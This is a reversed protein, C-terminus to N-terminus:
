GARESSGRGQHGGPPSFPLHSVQLTTPRRAAARQRGLRPWRAVRPATGRHARGPVRGGPFVTPHCLLRARPLRTGRREGAPPRRAAPGLKWRPLLQRQVHLPRKSPRPLPPPSLPGLSGVPALSATPHAGLHRASSPSGGSRSLAPASALPLDPAWCPVLRPEEAKHWDAAPPLPLPLALLGTGRDWLSGGAGSVRQGQVTM